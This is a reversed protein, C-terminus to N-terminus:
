YGCERGKQRGDSRRTAFPESRKLSPNHSCNCQNHNMATCYPGVLCRGGGLNVGPVASIVVPLVADAVVVDDTTVSCDFLTTRLVHDTGVAQVVVGVRYAHAVLAPEVYATLGIVRAGRSLLSGHSLQKLVQVPTVGACHDQTVIVEVGRPIARAVLIDGM